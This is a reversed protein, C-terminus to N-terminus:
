SILMHNQLGKLLVFWPWIYYSTPLSVLPLYDLSYFPMSQIGKFIWVRGFVLIIVLPGNSMNIHAEILFVLIARILKFLVVWKIFANCTPQTKKWDAISYGM